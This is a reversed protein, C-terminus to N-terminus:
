SAPRAFFALQARKHGLDVVPGLEGGERVVRAISPANLEDPEVVLRRVHPDAFLHEFLAAALRGTFGPRRPGPAVLLHVGLDGPRVPYAEGVPDHAPEYTQLLAVAGRGEELVLFAHHTPSAALHAYVAAVEARTHERMGWFVARDATVWAHIVDLDAVPDVPRISVDLASM